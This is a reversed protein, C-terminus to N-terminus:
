MRLVRATSAVVFAESRRQSIMLLYGDLPLVCLVLVLLDKRNWGVRDPFNFDIPALLYANCKEEAEANAHDKSSDDTDTLDVGFCVVDPGSEPLLQFPTNGNKHDRQGCESCEKDGARM